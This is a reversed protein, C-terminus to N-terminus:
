SKYSETLEMESAVQETQAVTNNMKKFRSMIKDAAYLVLFTLLITLSIIYLSTLM